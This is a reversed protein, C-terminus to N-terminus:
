CACRCDRHGLLDRHAHAPRGSGAAGDCACMLTHTHTHTHTFARARTRTRTCRHCDPVRLTARLPLPVHMPVQRFVKCGSTSEVAKINVGRTGIIRGVVSKDMPQSFDLMQAAAPVSAHTHVPTSIAGAPRTWSSEATRTNYYYTHGSKPDVGHVWESAATSTATATAAPGSTDAPAKRKMGRAASGDSTPDIAAAAVPPTEEAADAKKAPVTPAVTAGAAAGQPESVAENVQKPGEDAQEAEEVAGVEVQEAEEEPGEDVQEVDKNAEEAAIAEELRAVLAAKLGKSDLGRKKLAARLEVVKMKSVASAAM